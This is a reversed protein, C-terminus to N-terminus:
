GKTDIAKLTSSITAVQQQRQLSQPEADLFNTIDRTSMWILWDEDTIQNDPGHWVGPECHIYGYRLHAGKAALQKPVLAFVYDPSWARLALEFITRSLLPTLGQSRPGGLGHARLWFDGHYAVQGTITKLAQPRSYFTLDPDPTTDPTIYKHRHVNMHQELTTNSLDLLRIAQTHILEDQDNFGCIWFANSSDVYSCSVDFMPYLGGRGTQSNRLLRYESFDDGIEIRIGADELERMIRSVNSIMGFLNRASM